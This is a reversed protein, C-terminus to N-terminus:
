KTLTGGDTKLLILIDEEEGTKCNIYILMDEGLENKTLFEYTFKESEGADDSPIVALKYSEINLKGSLKAQADTVSIQPNEFNRTKHNLLFTSGDFLVTNGNNLDIGVKVLDPYYIVDDKYYAFNITCIGNSISYYSQKFSYDFNNKLFELAKKVAENASIKSESQTVNKRLYMLYGGNKTVTVTGGSYNFRYASLNGNEEYTKSLESEKVGAAKAAAAKAFELSVEKVGSLFVSKKNLLHESYPGDYISTPYSKLTDDNENLVGSLNIISNENFGEISLDMNKINDNYYNMNNHEAEANELREFIKESVASLSALNQQESSSIDKKAAAKKSLYFSFDGTQTFFKLIASSGKNIPLSSLNTVAASSETIIECAYNALMNSDTTYMAKKLAFNVNEANETLGVFARSYTNYNEIQLMKKDHCMKIIFGFAVLILAVTFSVIKVITGKIKEERLKQTNKQM